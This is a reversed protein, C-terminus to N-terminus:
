MPRMTSRGNALAAALHPSFIFGTAFAHLHCHRRCVKDLCGDCLLAREATTVLEPHLYYWQRNKARYMSLIPSLDVAERNGTSTVHRFECLKQRAALLVSGLPTNKCVRFCPPLDSVQVMEYERAPDRMGCSACAPLPGTEDMHTHFTDRLAETSAETLTCCRDVLQQLRWPEHDMAMEVNTSAHFLHELKNAEQWAESRRESPCFDCYVRDCCTCERSDPM